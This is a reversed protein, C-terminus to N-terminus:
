KMKFVQQQLDGLTNPTPYVAPTDGTQIQSNSPNTDMPPSGEIAGTLQDLIETM